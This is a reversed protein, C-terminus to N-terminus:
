LCLALLDVKQFIMVKGQFNKPVKMHLRTLEVQYLKPTVELQEQLRGFINNYSLNVVIKSKKKKCGNVSLLLGAACATPVSGERHLEM